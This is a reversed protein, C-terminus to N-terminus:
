PPFIWARAITHGHTGYKRLPATDTMYARWCARAWSLPCPPVPPKWWRGPGLGATEEYVQISATDETMNLIEGVLRQKGVRVVESVAADALGEAVVLPGSVKIVKGSM